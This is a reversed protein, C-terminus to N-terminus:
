KSSIPFTYLELRTWKDPVPTTAQTLMTLEYNPPGFTNTVLSFTYIVRGYTANAMTLLREIRIDAHWTLGFRMVKQTYVYPLTIVSPITTLVFEGFVTSLTIKVGDFFTFEILMPTTDTHPTISVQVDPIGTVGLFNSITPTTYQLNVTEPDDNLVIVVSTPQSTVAPARTSM